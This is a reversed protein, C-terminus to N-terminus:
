ILEGNPLGIRNFPNAAEARQKVEDSKGSHFLDTDVASPAMANVRVGRVALEKSM